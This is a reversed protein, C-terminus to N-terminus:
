MFIGLIAGTTLPVALLWVQLLLTPYLQEQKGHKGEVRKKISLVVIAFVVLLILLCTSGAVPEISQNYPIISGWLLGFSFSIVMVVLRIMLRIAVLIM